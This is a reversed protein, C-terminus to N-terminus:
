QDATRLCLGCTRIRDPACHKLRRTTSIFHRVSHARFIGIDPPTCLRDRTSQAPNNRRSNRIVCASCDRRKLCSTRDLPLAVPDLDALHPTGREERELSRPQHHRRTSQNCRSELCSMCIPATKPVLAAREREEFPLHDVDGRGRRLRAPHPRRM